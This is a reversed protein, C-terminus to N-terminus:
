SIVTIRDEIIKDTATRDKANSQRIWKVLAEEFNEHKAVRGKKTGASSV